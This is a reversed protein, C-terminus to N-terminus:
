KFLLKKSKAQAFLQNYLDPNKRFLETKQTVNMSVFADLTVETSAGPKKTGKSGDNKFSTDGSSGGASRGRAEEALAQLDDDSLEQDDALSSLKDSVLFEFYRYNEKGVGYEIAAELVANKITANQYGASVVKLKEDPSEEDDEILGADVLSKKLKGQQETLTKNKIRHDANEKRLNGILKQVNPDLKSLDPGDKTKDEDDEETIDEVKTKKGDDTKKSRIARRPNGPRERIRTRRVQRM